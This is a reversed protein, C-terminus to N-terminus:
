QDEAKEVLNGEEDFKDWDIVGTEIFTRVVAAARKVTYDSSFQDEFHNWPEFLKAAELSTLGLYEQALGGAGDAGYFALGCFDRKGLKEFQCIAGAICCATGCGDNLSDDAYYYYSVAFNMDFKTIEYDNDITVHPAGAELWQLVQTLALKGQDNM